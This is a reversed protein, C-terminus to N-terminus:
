VGGFLKSRKIYFKRILDIPVVTSALLLMINFEFISLGSTRFINGGHYIMLIQIIIIFLLVILFVKNRIVDAFINLRSTRANFSNFIAIFIFLGFFATFITNLNNNFLSNLYNSKLFIICLLSSYAGTFIIENKMYKNIIRENRKKPKEKMYEKLPPEFSFALGALTDMVMNIWLMQVVTIPSEIGIFPGVISLSVACMNVTLQFIIFKRISKFITRGFMVASEISSLNDDLIIIDSAEKSVETGSGMAFGVDAKKLAPADNVGDGTMGVVLDLKQALHVLRSKDTPMSRALVELNPLMKIVEEDKMKNLESSTIVTGSTLIGVERAINTATEKNDGTVMVVKIGAEKLESVTEKVNDKIEDKLLLLGLFISSKIPDIDPHYRSYSIAIVRTGKAAEMKIYENIKNKNLLFKENSNEDLYKTCNNLIVEPAGKIYNIKDM